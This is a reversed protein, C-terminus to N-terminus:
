LFEEVIKQHLYRVTGLNPNRNIESGILVYDLLLNDIVRRDRESHFELVIADFKRGDRVLPELIEIECGETDLKLINAHPLELPSRIEVHSGIDSTALNPYLSAEGTNNQGNYLPRLGPTGIGYAHIIIPYNKANERLTNIIDSNPEYAHIIAGPFRHSAWVSFSGYNAGIDLIVPSYRVYPIDYEGSFVKQLHPAISEDCIFQGSRFNLVFSYKQETM